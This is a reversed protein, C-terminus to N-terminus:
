EASLVVSVPIWKSVTQKLFGNESWEGLAENLEQQLAANEKNVAWALHEETLPAYLGFLREDTPYSSTLQWVTPADHIFYDVKNNLLADIGDQQTAFGIQPASKLQETVFKQGTTNLSYGVRYNGSMLQAKAALRGADASRIIAMQGVDMYPNSFLVKEKRADTVSVGSMVVDIEGTDLAEFLAQWSYTKINITANLSEGLAHAFDVEMGKLEGEKQFALPPYNTAMGVNVVRSPGTLGACGAAILTALSLIVILLWKNMRIGM